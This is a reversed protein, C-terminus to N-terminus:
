TTALARPRTSLAYATPILALYCLAGLRLTTDIGFTISIAVAIASGLVGAAGNMGWFWPTPKKDRQMVMRMGNPFGFGMLFAGPAILLVAFSARAFTGSAAFTQLLPPLLLPLALVYAALLVAWVAFRAPQDLAFRDSAFSGLGTFLIISFLVISLSYIPHGLFVSLRQLLGIEVFMFGLGILVFYATGAAILRPESERIAPRMPVVITVLVLAAALVVILLLTASAIINGSLVGPKEFTQVNLAQYARTLPLQNFFFPRDDTPPSLDLLHGSTARELEAANTSSTIAALLPSAAPRGPSLLVEFNREASVRQLTALEAATLPARSLVLTALSGTAALFLHQSPERVGTELLARVALSIMRGTENVEGASYWRSVTYVGTPSLRALFHQWGEVTYLGNESLSFAGAGTAAFTDIMSMQVLDFSDRSRAFWSRAEDVVFRIGPLSALNAFDRFDPHRTILDIFIPNLEVGTIDRFGFVWASLIDRGGGVGIVAARGTNRIEYALNTIDYALFRASAPNGDFRFMSTAADGDINLRRQAVRIDAPMTSSPGWLLPEAVYTKRAMIRSYSNWQEFSLNERRDVSNKVVIPQIGRMTTGNAVALALLLACLAWPRVLQRDLWTLGGAAAGPASARFCGAAAAAVAATALISSVADLVDLLLLVGLCGVSAGILDVAYVQSVPFPSRTLALSVVVGSFFFPAAMVIALEAWTLITSASLILVPAHTVQLLVSGATALAFASGFRLLYSPLTDATIRASNYYVWVAGATMGFMAMSISFFALHYHATVSLLRTEIVQLMLTALCTLFVGALFWPKNM